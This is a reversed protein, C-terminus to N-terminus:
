TITALDLGLEGAARRVREPASELAAFRIPWDNTVAAALTEAQLLSLAYARGDTLASVEGALSAHPRGALGPLAAYEDVLIM